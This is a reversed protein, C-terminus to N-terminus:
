NWGEGLLTSAPIMLLLRETVSCQKKLSVMKRWDTVVLLLYMSCVHVYYSVRSMIYREGYAVQTQVLYNRANRHTHKLTLAKEFDAIGERYKGDNAFRRHYQAVNDFTRSCHIICCSYSM